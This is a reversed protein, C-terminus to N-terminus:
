FIQASLVNRRRFIDALYSPSMSTSDWIEPSLRLFSVLHMFVMLVLLICAVATTSSSRLVAVGLLAPCDDEPDSDVKVYSIGYFIGGLTVSCTDAISGPMACACHGLGHQVDQCCSPRRCGRWVAGTSFYSACGWRVRGLLLAPSHARYKYGAGPRRYM